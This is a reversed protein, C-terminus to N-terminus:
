LAVMKRAVLREVTHGPSNRSTVMLAAGSLSTAISGCTEDSCLEQGSTPTYLATPVVNRIGFEVMDGTVILLFAWRPIIDLTYVGSGDVSGIVEDIERM